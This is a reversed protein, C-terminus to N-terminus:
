RVEKRVEKMVEKRVEKMVEKRGHILVTLVLQGDNRVGHFHQKGDPEHAASPRVELDKRGEKKM